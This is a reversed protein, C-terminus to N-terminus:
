ADRGKSGWGPLGRWRGALLVALTVALVTVMIAHYTDNLPSHPGRGAAVAAVGLLVGGLAFAHTAVNVRWWSRRGTLAPVAGLLLALGCLSEVVIAPFIMPEDLVLGGLRVTVGAHLLAGLFFTAAYVLALAGITTRAPAPQVSPAQSM